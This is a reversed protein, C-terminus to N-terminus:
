KPEKSGDMAKMEPALGVHDPCMDFCFNGAMFAAWQDSVNPFCYNRRSRTCGTADCYIRGGPHDPMWTM